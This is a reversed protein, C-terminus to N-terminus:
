FVVRIIDNGQKLIAEKRSTKCYFHFDEYYDILGKIDLVWKGHELGCQSKGNWSLVMSGGVMPGNQKAWFARELGLKEKRRREIWGLTAAGSLCGGSGWVLDLQREFSECCWSGKVKYCKVEVVM